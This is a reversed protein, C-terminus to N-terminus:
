LMMKLARAQRGQFFDFNILCWGPKFNLDSHNRSWWLGQRELSLNEFEMGLHGNM